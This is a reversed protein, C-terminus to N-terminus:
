KKLAEGQVQSFREELEAKMQQIELQMEQRVQEIKDAEENHSPNLGLADILFENIIQSSTKGSSKALSKIRTLIEATTRFTMQDTLKM